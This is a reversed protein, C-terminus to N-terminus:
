TPARSPDPGAPRERTLFRQVAADTTLAVARDFAAAAAPEDGRERLVFARTVWYPQYGAVRDVPLADLAELAADVRGTELLVAARGVAAGVSPACAALVDYLMLLAAYNTTGTLLRQCHVSQIAAECQYRDFRQGRSAAVLLGEADIIRDRSWRRTDQRSLPVFTGDSDYRAPRRADCYLMLALLGKADPQDPLLQVILRGLYIAEDTLGRVAEDGGVADWGTGFAAYIAHLVDAVRETLVEPEPLTFGLGADRIKAKARVLRQAMASPAVLFAAAIRSAELGLVTQLMLPTRVSEDIAPHACVFLLELQRDPFADGPRSAREDYLREVEARGAHRVQRSRAAHGLVRRAATLLWAEPADPVGREPWVRLAAAFADALADEAAAIDHCRASLIAVLRGYSARAATEAVRRAADDIVGRQEDAAAGAASGGVRV